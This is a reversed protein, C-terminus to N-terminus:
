QASQKRNKHNESVTRLASKHEEYFKMKPRLALLRGLVGGFGIDNLSRGQGVATEAFAAYFRTAADFPTGGDKMTLNVASRLLQSEFQPLPNKLPQSYYTQLVGLQLRKCDYRRRSAFLRIEHEREGGSAPLTRSLNDALTSAM